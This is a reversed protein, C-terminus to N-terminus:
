GFISLLAVFWVGSALFIVATYGMMDRARVGTLGLLPLAWFPQLMNTWQDGYAVAMVASSLSLGLQDAAQLAIPGQIAWQGGGSPVFLNILGASLFTFVLYTSPSSLTVAAAALLKALGSVAMMGMIGGYLPFQLIIGACGSVATEVARLYSRPRAHLLLGATLLVVNVFNLDINGFGKAGLYRVVYAALPVVLVLTVLPSAELRETWSPDSPAMPADDKAETDELVLPTSEGASPTMAYILLPVLVWLGLTTVLNLPSLLTEFIPLTPVVAGLEPGLLEILDPRTTVKLPATGSFGGHWVLMGTYGAAAILPYHLVLGRRAASEAVRKSLIAGVMLGLGWNLLAFGMSVAAVMAGAAGASRPWEAVRRFVGQVVPASALAHGTVLVLCMQMSFGLLGFFGRPGQWADVLEGAGIPTLLLALVATLATLGIALLFPDPTVARFLRALSAGLARIM